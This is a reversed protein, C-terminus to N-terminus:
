PCTSSPPQPCCAEVTVSANMTVTTAMNPDHGGNGANAGDTNTWYGWVFGTNATADLHVVTGSAFGVPEAYAAGNVTVTCWALYNNITLIPLGGDPGSSSSCGCVLLGGLVTAVFLTKM